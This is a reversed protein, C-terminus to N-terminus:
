SNATDVQASAFTAMEGLIKCAAQLLPIALAAGSGEGLRLDLQLLPRLGLQQLAIRHGPEAGCHAAICYEIAQPALAQAVLAAATTIFGDLLIAVRRQAAGVIIGALIGIEFGGVEILPGLGDINEGVRAVAQAVVAIKHQYQESQVGTGHGTVTAAAQQCYIATLCAAATTNGIGMEGLAILDHGADALEHALAIGRALASQAQAQSMVPEIALNKTGAGLWESRFNPASSSIATQVGADVILLEAGAHRALVSVAAGGALFNAVMQATVSSPYASVGSETVGHDAAAVIIIPKQITPPCQQRIGALQISLAELQGLAGQPKTLQNQRQQAQAIAAQDLPAIPEINVVQEM